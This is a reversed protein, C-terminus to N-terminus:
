SRCPRRSLRVIAPWIPCGISTTLAASSRRCSSHSSQMVTARGNAFPLSAKPGPQRVEVSWFGGPLQTSLHLEFLEGTDAVIPLAASMTASTNVVLLDGPRLWRPLDHFRAHEITDSAVDSVLLRVEDRRLGRAEPPEGAELSAPLAADSIVGASAM